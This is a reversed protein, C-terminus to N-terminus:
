SKGLVRRAHTVEGHGLPSGGVLGGERVPSGLAEEPEEEFVLGYHVILTEIVRAQHPYDVLSSLSVTADTPRPRLLTPGFVIALNGSTMKNDQEM